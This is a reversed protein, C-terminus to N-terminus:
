IYSSSAILVCVHSIFCDPMVERQCENVLVCDPMVFV